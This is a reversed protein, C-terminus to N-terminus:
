GGRCITFAPLRYANQGDRDTEEQKGELAQKLEIQRSAKEPSLGAASHHRPGRRKLLSDRGHAFRGPHRIGSNKRSHTRFRAM